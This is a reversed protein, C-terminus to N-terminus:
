WSIHYFLSDGKSRQAVTFGRQKLVFIESFNLDNMWTIQTAGQASSIFMRQWINMEKFKIDRLKKCDTATIDSIKRVTSSM